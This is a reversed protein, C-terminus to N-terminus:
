QLPKYEFLLAKAGDTYYGPREGTLIFGLSEYIAVAPLNGAHVELWIKEGAALNAILSRILGSMAGTRHERFKTALLMIELIEGIKRYLCFAEIVGDDTFAGVGHHTNLEDAMKSYTWEGGIPHEYHSILDQWIKFCEELDNIKLERFIPM